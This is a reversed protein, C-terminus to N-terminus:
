HQPFPVGYRRFVDKAWKRNEAKYWFFIRNQNKKAEPNREVFIKKMTYVDYGTYYMETSATMPTPTFDQVQELHYGLRATQAALEVMEKLSCAPHSSIFYPILQQKLGYKSNIQEFRRKIDVFKDFPMKRMARLVKDSCHEPAVKLRGSVHHLVLQEFYDSGDFLDYRIGSGVFAKRIYPLRRVSNYLDILPAHNNNMNKCLVPYLCSTRVCKACVNRNKGGMMYMNASPGGLDSLYGKFDKDQSITEIEKLISEKSRSIIKKGQHAAITCFACGGFCGRHINVSFKIMEYAPIKGRKAYKPHPKREFPLDYVADLDKSCYTKDSPNVVVYIGEKEYKQVLRKQHERNSNLEFEAFSEAQLRRDSLCREYSPLMKMEWKDSIKSVDRVVCATQEMDSLSDLSEGRDLAKCLRVCVKEGMGYVLVDARSDLLVSPMLRDAWYDYHALRRMSAEIGGIIVPVDPYITKLINSYVVTARDPRFGSVGGPTYADDSRRRKAATYHNVMSDMCGSSVGFFLRPRGFKRFDRLDDQWNPQALVAVRFGAAQLSRAIVAHGFSPHDVYADGSVIVVDVYDWGLSELEKKTTPLFAMIVDIFFLSGVM